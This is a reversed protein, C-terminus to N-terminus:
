QNIDIFFQSIYENFVGKKFASSNLLYYKENKICILDLFTLFKEKPVETKFLQTSM